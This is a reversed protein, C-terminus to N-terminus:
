QSELYLINIKVFKVISKICLFSTEKGKFVVNKIGDKNRKNWSEIICKVGKEYKFHKRTLFIIYFEKFMPICSQASPTSWVIM